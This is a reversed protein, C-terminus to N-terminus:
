VDEENVDRLIGRTIKRVCEEMCDIGVEWGSRVTEVIEDYGHPQPDLMEITIKVVGGAFGIGCGKPMEITESDNGILMTVCSRKVVRM